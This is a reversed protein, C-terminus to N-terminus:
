QTKESGKTGNEYSGKVYGRALINDLKGGVENLHNVLSSYSERSDLKGIPYNPQKKIAFVEIRYTHEGSSKPPYPGVYTKLDTYEGEKIETDTIDTIFLHLWNASEDFMIIAYYNAGEVQEWSIAPSHNKGRPDNSQKDAAVPKVLKGDVVSSSTVEITPVDLEADKFEGYGCGSILILIILITTLQNFIRKM